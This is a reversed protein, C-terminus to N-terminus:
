SSELLTKIRSALAPHLPEAFPNVVTMGRFVFGEQMDESLLFTCGAEAAVCVVLADWIQFEHDKALNLADAFATPSHVTFVLADSWSRVIAAAEERSRRDKRHLVNYLEGAVQSPMVIDTADMSNILRRARDQRAKDNVGAAYALVNTDLAIKM